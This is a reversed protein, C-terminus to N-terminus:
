PTQFTRTNSTRISALAHAPHPPAGFRHLLLPIGAQILAVATIIAIAATKTDVGTFNKQSTPAM